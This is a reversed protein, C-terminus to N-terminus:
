SRTMTRRALAALGMTPGEAARGPRMPTCPGMLMRGVWRMVVGRLWRRGGPMSTIADGADEAGEPVAETAGEGTIEGAM